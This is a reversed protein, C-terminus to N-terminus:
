ARMPSMNKPTHPGHDDIEPHRLPEPLSTIITKAAQAPELGTTSIVQAAHPRLHHQESEHVATAIAESLASGTLGFRHDGQIPPGGGHARSTIRDVLASPSADLWFMTVKDEGWIRDIMGMTGADGSVVVTEAGGGALSSVVARANDARLPALRDGRTDTGLLGLQHVDLYGVAGGAGALHIFTQFGITSVGVGGPGTIAIVRSPWPNKSNAPATSDADPASQALHALAAETVQATLDTLTRNTTDLYLDAMSPNIQAAYDVADEMLELLWGRRHFRQRITDSDADLHVALVRDRTLHPVLQELHHRDDALGAVILMQAGQASFKSDLAPLASAILETESASVGSALRLQDADIFAATVGATELASLMRYGTTSKGM